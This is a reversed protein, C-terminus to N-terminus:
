VRIIKEKEKGKGKGKEKEKEEEKNNNNYPPQQLQNKITTCIPEPHLEDYQHNLDTM